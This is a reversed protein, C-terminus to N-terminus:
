PVNAAILERIDPFVRAPKNDSMNAVAVQWAGAFLTLTPHTNITITTSVYSQGGSSSSGGSFDTIWGSYTGDGNAHCMDHWGEADYDYERPPPSMRASRDRMYFKEHEFDATDGYHAIHEEQRVARMAAMRRVHGEVRRLWELLEPAHEVLMILHMVLSRLRQWDEVKGELLVRMPGMGAGSFKPPADPPVVAASHGNAWLAAADCESMGGQDQVRLQVGSVIGGLLSANEFAPESQQSACQRYHDLIERLNGRVDPVIMANIRRPPGSRVRHKAINANLVIQAAKDLAARRQYLAILLLQHLQGPFLQLVLGHQDALKAAHLLADGSCRLLTDNTMFATM